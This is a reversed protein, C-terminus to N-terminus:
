RRKKGGRRQRSRSPGSRPSASPRRTSRGRDFAAPAPTRVIFLYLILSPAMILLLLPNRGVISLGFAALVAAFVLWRMIRRGHATMRRGLMWLDVADALMTFCAVAGALTSTAAAIAQTSGLGTAVVLVVLAGLLVGTALFLTLGASRAIGVGPKVPAPM